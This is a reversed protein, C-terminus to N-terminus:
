VNLGTNRGHWRVCLFTWSRVHWLGERAELRIRQGKLATELPTVPM